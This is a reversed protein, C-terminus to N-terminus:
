KDVQSSSRKGREKFKASLENQLRHAEQTMAQLQAKINEKDSDKKNNPRNEDQFEIEPTDVSSQILSMSPQNSIVMSPAMLNISENMTSDRKKLSTANKGLLGKNATNRSFDLVQARRPSTKYSCHTTMSNKVIKQKKGVNMPM